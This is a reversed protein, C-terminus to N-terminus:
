FSLSFGVEVRRPAQASTPQGFFPSQLNGVYGTYNTHNLVNSIQAYVDLRYRSTGGMEVIQINPGDGGGPGGGGPGRQAAAGGPLGPPMLGGGSSGGLSFSRNLRLGINVQAAGRETNRGVGAPRDNFVTDGNSDFGTTITYPLGSSIVGNIGARIGFAVPTNLMAMVRHRADNAAPGWDADPDLSDAPLSTPSNAHNRASALQYGVHGFIRRSPVRMDFMVSLRDLARRGTSVIETINGAAAIPRVGDVPANANFSRLQNTGRIFMYDARLSMQETLKRDFGISAQHITPQELGDGVRTISPPLVTAASRFPDPYSPNVVIEELQHTGDLRVTQEYLSTEFWDYFIGYGGRVNYRSARPSWTFGVRPALNWRDSFNTQTEYRLGLSLSVDRRPKFDDQIFVGVQTQTYSVDPNGVARSYLSPRGALFDDVTRFTFTGNANRQTTSDWWTMELLGGARFTHRGITFDLNEVLEFERSSRVGAQGAGGSTFADLVRVTPAQSASILSTETTRYEARIENFVKRGVVQTNRVRFTDSVSEQTYARDALDFDGVGLNRRSDDRRQFELRLQGTQSIAHDVRMNVNYTDTPRRVQDTFTGGPTAAVITQSDYAGMGQGSFAFSTKGKQLPGSFNIMYRQQQEPGRVPAFANRANLSDDRFGANFMGRWGGFGPRTTVEVRVMGAEHYEASFSNTNFRIQQIQDKPPLRGGRFGDVFIQAGQGAMMMLQEAMEDPDDSLGAIEEDSLVTTFGNDRRDAADAEEVVVDEKIAVALRLTTANTGRRVTVPLALSRFGEAAATVGYTGPALGDIRAVGADNVPVTTVAGAPSTVTVEAHVLRAETEDMVTVLLTGTDVPAGSGAVQARAPWAAALTALVLIFSRLTVRM